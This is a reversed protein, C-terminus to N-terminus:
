LCLRGSTSFSHFPSHFICNITESGSRKWESRWDDRSVTRATKILAGMHCRDCIIPNEALKVDNIKQLKAVLKEDFGNLQNRSLDLLQLCIWYFTFSNFPSYLLPFPSPTDIFHVAVIYCLRTHVFIRFRIFAFKRARCSCPTRIERTWRWLVCREARKYLVCYIFRTLRSIPNANKRGREKHQAM